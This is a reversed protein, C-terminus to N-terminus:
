LGRESPFEYTENRRPRVTNVLVVASAVCVLAVAAVVLFVIAVTM